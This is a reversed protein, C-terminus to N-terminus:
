VISVVEPKVLEKYDEAKMAVSYSRDGANFIIKEHEFIGIDAYVKLGFLNGFPPVGGPKVGKTIESVEDETAFRIDKIGLVNKVKDKDFKKDGPVVLMVFESEGGGRKTKVILAKAGEELSYGDRIRAAEESTRVPPHEFSEFWFGSGEILESIQRTLPHYAM